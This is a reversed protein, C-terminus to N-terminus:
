KPLLDGFHHTVRTLTTSFTTLNHRRTTFVRQQLCLEPSLLFVDTSALIFLCQCLDTIKKLLENELKILLRGCLKGM